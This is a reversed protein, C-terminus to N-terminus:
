ARHGSNHIAQATKLREVLEDSVDAHDEIHALIDLTLSGIGEVYQELTIRRGNKMKFWVPLRSIINFNDVGAAAFDTWPYLTVRSIQSVQLGQDTIQYWIRDGCWGTLWYTGWAILVAVAAFGVGLAFQNWQPFLMQYLFHFVYLVLLEAIVCIYRTNRFRRGMQYKRGM